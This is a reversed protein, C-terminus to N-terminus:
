IFNQLTVEEKKPQAKSKKPKALPQKVLDPAKRKKKINGEQQALGKVSASDRQTKPPPDVSNAFQVLPTLLSRLSERESM